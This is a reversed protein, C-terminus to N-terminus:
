EKKRQKKDGDGEPFFNIGFTKRCEANVKRVNSGFKEVCRRIIVKNLTYGFKDMCMVVFKNFATEGEGRVEICNGARFTIHEPSFKRKNNM